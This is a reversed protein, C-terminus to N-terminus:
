RTIQCIQLLFDPNWGACKRRTKIGGITKHHRVLDLAFRRVVVMNKADNGTRYRSLDDNFELDLLRDSGVQDDLSSILLPGARSRLSCHSVDFTSSNNNPAETPLKAKRTATIAM